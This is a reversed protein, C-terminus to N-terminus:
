MLPSERNVPNLEVGNSLFVEWVEPSQIFRLTGDDIHVGNELFYRVVKIQDAAAAHKLGMSLTFSDPNKEKIYEKIADVNGQNCAQRFLDPSPNLVFPNSM